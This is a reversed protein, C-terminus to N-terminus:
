RIGQVPNDLTKQYALLGEENAFVLSQKLFIVSTQALFDNGSRNKKSFVMLTYSILVSGFVTAPATFFTIVMVLFRVLPQWWQIRYGAKTVVALGLVKKGITQGNRLALPMLLYYFVMAVGMSWMVVELFYQNILTVLSSFPPYQNFDTLATRYAAQYFVALDTSSVGVKAIAVVTPDGQNLTFIADSDNIKLVNENFWPISFDFVPTDPQYLKGDKFQAYYQYIGLPMEADTLNRLLDTDTDEVYLYSALQYATLEDALASTNYQQQYLPGFVYSLLLLSSTIFFVFDLIAAGTRKLLNANVAFPNQNM